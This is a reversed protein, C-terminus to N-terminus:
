FSESKGTLVRYSDLTGAISPANKDDKQHIGYDMWQGHSYSYMEFGTTTELVVDVVADAPTNAPVVTSRVGTEHDMVWVAIVEDVLLDEAEAKSLPRNPWGEAPEPQEMHSTAAHYTLSKRVETEDYPMQRIEAFGSVSSM